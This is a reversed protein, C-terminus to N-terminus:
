DPAVGVQVTASLQAKNSRHRQDYEARLQPLRALDEPQQLLRVVDAIGAEKAELAQQYCTCQVHM